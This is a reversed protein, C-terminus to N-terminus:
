ALEATGFVVNFDDCWATIGRWKNPDFGEPLAINFNGRKTAEGGDRGGPTLLKLGSEVNAPSRANSKETFYFYVDPGSTADYGEFRLWFAGDRELVRVTGNSEHHADGDMFEGTKHQTFDALHLGGPLPENVNDTGAPAFWMEAVIAGIVVLLIGVAALAGLVRKKM